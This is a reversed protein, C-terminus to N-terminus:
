SAGRVELKCNLSSVAVFMFVMFRFESVMYICREGAGAQITEHYKCRLRCARPVCGMDERGERGERRGYRAEGARESRVVYM